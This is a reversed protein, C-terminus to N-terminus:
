KDKMEDFKFSPLDANGMITLLVGVCVFFFTTAMLSASVPNHTGTNDVRLYLMIMTILALVFSLAGSILSLKQLPGKTKTM